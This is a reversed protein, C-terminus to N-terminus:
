ASSELSLAQIYIDAYLQRCLPRLPSPLRIITSSQLQITPRARFALRVERLVTRFDSPPLQSEPARRRRFGGNGGGGRTEPGAAPSRASNHLRATGTESM